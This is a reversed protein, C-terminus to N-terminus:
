VRVVFGLFEGTAPAYGESVGRVQAHPPGRRCWALYAQVQDPLGEAVTEVSGDPLNRVWGTIGLRRAETCASVRFFVGQVRGDVRFCGRVADRLDPRATM